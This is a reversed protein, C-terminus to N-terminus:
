ALHAMEVSTDVLGAGRLDTATLRAEDLSPHRMERLAPLVPLLSRERIAPRLRAVGHEALWAQRIEQPARGSGTECWANPCAQCRWEIGWYLQGRDISQGVDRVLM